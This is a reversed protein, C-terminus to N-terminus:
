NVLEEEQSATPQPSSYEVLVIFIAFVTNITRSKTIPKVM